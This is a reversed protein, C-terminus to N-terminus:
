ECGKSMKRFADEDIFEPLSTTSTGVKGVVIGAALNALQSAIEWSLDVTKMLSLVSLVTDGAGAVDYVEKAKAPSYCNGESKSHVFIGQAGLTIVINDIQLQEALQKAAKEADSVTELSIQTVIETELRNASIMTAGQYKSWDQGKPGAFVSKNEQRCHQIIKQVFSDPLFGKAYDSVIVGSFSPLLEQLKAFAEAETEASIEARSERDTRLLHHGQSIYRTKITTPRQSDVILGKQLLGHQQMLDRLNEGYVDAGIVSLMDSKAGLSILNHAVNGAGGIRSEERSVELVQVPAEPSIRKVSGFAYHDLILDGIVLFSTEQIKEQIQALSIM